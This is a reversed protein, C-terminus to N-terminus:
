GGIASQRLGKPFHNKLTQRTQKGWALHRGQWTAIQWGQQTSHVAVSEGAVFRCAQQDDLEVHKPQLIHEASLKASGFLPEWRGSKAQALPMGAVCSEVWSSDASAPFGHIEDKRQWCQLGEISQVWGLQQLSKEAPQWNRRPAWRKPEAAPSDMEPRRLGAAFAGACRDRHPWLRYCGAQLSSEWRALADFRIAEWGPQEKLFASVIYENEAVSFTCTSYVLRGGPRVLEAAARMIRQQRAASHEIQSPLFASLSQKGRAIMSQGTCPADVLVCDFAPGCVQALAEVDRNMLLYNAYGTRCLALKLVNLRSAIVENSVLIGAGGLHELFATSKGGPSACTDCVLQGPQVQCLELALMSSADQVYYDGAAHQLFAGPRVDASRLYHGRPYWPVPESEFPLEERAIHPALRVSRPPHSFNAADLAAFDADSWDDAVAELVKPWDVNNSTM